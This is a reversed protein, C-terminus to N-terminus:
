FASMEVVCFLLVVNCFGCIRQRSSQPILSIATDTHSFTSDCTWTVLDMTWVDMMQIALTGMFWISTNAHFCLSGFHPKAGDILSNISTWPSLLLRAQSIKYVNSIKALVDARVLTLVGRGCLNISQLFGVVGQRTCGLRSIWQIRQIEGSESAGSMFSGHHSCALLPRFLGNTSM